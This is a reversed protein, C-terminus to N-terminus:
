AEFFHFQKPSLRFTKQDNSTSPLSFTVFGQELALLDVAKNEELM